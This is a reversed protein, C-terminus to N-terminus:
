EDEEPIFLEHGEGKVQNAELVYEKLKANDGTLAANEASALAVILKNMIVRYKTTLDDTTATGPTLSKAQVALDIMHALKGATDANMDPKKMQRRVLRYNSAMGNEGTMIEELKEHADGGHGHGDHGDKDAHKDGHNDASVFQQTPLLTLSFVAILAAALVYLSSRKM